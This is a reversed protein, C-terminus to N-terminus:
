YNITKFINQNQKQANLILRAGDVVLVLGIMLALLMSGTFRENKIWSKYLSLTWEPFMVLLFGKLLVLWCLITIMVRPKMVWINHYHVFFIGLLLFILGTVLFSFVTPHSEKLIKQYYQRRTLFIVSIFILYSGIINAYLFSQYISPQM